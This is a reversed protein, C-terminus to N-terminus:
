PGRWRNNSPAQECPTLWKPEFEISSTQDPDWTTVWPRGLRAFPCAPIEVDHDVGIASDLRAYIRWCRGNDGEAHNVVQSITLRTGKPVSCKVMGLCLAHITGGGGAGCRGEPAFLGDRVGIGGSNIVYADQALQFCKGAVRAAVPKNTADHSVVACAALGIVALITFIRM